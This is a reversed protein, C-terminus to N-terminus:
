EGVDCWKDKNEPKNKFSFKQFDATTEIILGILFGISGILDLITFSHEISNTFNVEQLPLNLYNASAPANTFMVPLSVVYM